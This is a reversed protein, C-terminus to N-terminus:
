KLRTSDFRINAVLSPRQLRTCSLSRQLRDRNEGYPMRGSRDAFQDPQQALVRDLTEQGAYGACGLIAATSM